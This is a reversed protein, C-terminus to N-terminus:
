QYTSLIRNLKLTDSTSTYVAVHVLNYCESMEYQVGNRHLHVRFNEANEKSLEVHLWKCMTQNTCISM